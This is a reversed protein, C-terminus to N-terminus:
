HTSMPLSLVGRFRARKDRVPNGAPTLDPFRKFLAPIAIRAELRAVNLGACTHIGGAFAMHNRPYRTVDLLDPDPYVAPDRNAAGIAFTLTTDAPISFEDFQVAATTRRNGLQVPAEYRLLEEVASNILGPQEKLLRLQEPRALLCFVGNGILNATTEHGANLIFICQHYLQKDSLVFGDSEWKILRSLIDDHDDSLNKRREQVLDALYDLFERVCRNGYDLKERSLDFELAGLIANAWRQLVGRDERPLRLLNGIVEVPILTAFDSMGDFERKDEIRDLLEAIYRHLGPEMAILTKQALADGIAKRVHTHLPPDNFVLSTTHHEYLLTDGFLPKFMKKKDSSFLKPDRYIRFLDAHRTFFYSGDAFRHVPSRERLAHYYPYPDEYYDDPLNTLSFDAVPIEQTKDTMDTKM